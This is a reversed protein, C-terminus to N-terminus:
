LKQEPPGPQKVLCNPLTIDAQSPGVNVVNTLPTFTFTLLSFEGVGLTAVGGRRIGVSFTGDAATVVYDVGSYDLGNTRVLQNAVPQGIADKVCGAVFVTAQAM